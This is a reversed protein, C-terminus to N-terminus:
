NGPSKVLSPHPAVPVAPPAPAEPAPSLKPANPVVGAAGSGAGVRAAEFQPALPLPPRPPEDGSTKKAVAALKDAQGLTDGIIEPLRDYFNFHQRMHPLVIDNWQKLFESTLLPAVEKEIKELLKPYTVAGSYYYWDLLDCVKLFYDGVFNRQKGQLEVELLATVYLAFDRLKNGKEPPTYWPILGNALVKEFSGDGSCGGFLGGEIQFLQNHDAPDLRFGELVRINKTGRGTNNSVAKPDSVGKESKTVISIQKVNESLKDAYSNIDPFTESTKSLVFVIDDYEAAMPSQAVMNMFAAFFEKKGFQFYCPVILTKKAKDKIVKAEVENKVKIPLNLLLRQIEKDKLSLIVDVKDKKPAPMELNVGREGIDFGMYYRRDLEPDKIPDDNPADLGGNVQGHEFIQACPVIRQKESFFRRFALGREDIKKFCPYMGPTSISFIAKTNTLQDRISSQKLLEAFDNGNVNSFIHINNAKPDIGHQRLIGELSEKTHLPSASSFHIMYLPKYGNLLNDQKVRRIINIFHHLDGVSENYVDVAFLAYGKDQSPLPGGVLHRGEVKTKRELASASLKLELIRIMQEIIKKRQEKEKKQAVKIKQEVELREKEDEKEKREAELRKKKAVLNEYEYNGSLMIDIIDTEQEQETQSINRNIQCIDTNIQRLDDGTRSLDRETQDIESKIQDFELRAQKIAEHLISNDMFEKREAM